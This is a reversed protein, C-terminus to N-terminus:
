RAPDAFMAMWKNWQKGVAACRESTVMNAKDRDAAEQAANWGKRVAPISESQDGVKAMRALTAEATEEASQPGRPLFGAASCLDYEHAVGGFLAGFLQAEGRQVEPPIQTRRAPAQGGTTKIRSDAATRVPSEDLEVTGSTVFITRVVNDPGFDCRLSIGARKYLFADLPGLKMTKFPEGLRDRVEDRSAGITAGEISGRFPSDLRVVIATGSENFFVRVGRAPIGLATENRTTSSSTPSPAADTALAKQVAEVSDGVSIRHAENTTSNNQAALVTSGWATLVSVVLLVARLVRMRREQFAM